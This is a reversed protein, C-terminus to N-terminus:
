VATALESVLNHAAGVLPEELRPHDGFNRIMRLLEVCTFLQALRGSRTALDEKFEVQIREAVPPVLLSYAWLTAADLGRPGVGWGEWDLIQLHPATLNAWHLDAHAITWEDITPDVRDGGVFEAIRRNVLDQRAGVRTTKHLRLASLSGTLQTWWEDALEPSVEIQPTASILSGSALTLEDARWILGREEDLWRFSRLLRPKAVGRLVSACEEGTWTRENLQDNPRYSIRLWTAQDTRFGASKGGWGYSATARDLRLDLAQEVSACVKEPLYEQLNIAM